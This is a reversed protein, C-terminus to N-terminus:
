STPELIVGKASCEAELRAFYTPDPYGYGNSSDTGTKHHIGNWIVTNNRGSTISTGITFTLKREWCIKLLNIIKQGDETNPVYCHRVTGSYLTGPHVHNDNQVGSPFSYIIEFTTTALEGECQANILQVKMTGYPMNGCRIGYIKTCIACEVYNGKSSKFYNALCDEHYYHNDCQSMRVMIEDSDSFDSLCIPCIQEKMELTPTIVAYKTLTQLTELNKTEGRQISTRIPRVFSTRLNQQVMFDFNVNYFSNGVSFKVSGENNTCSATFKQTISEDYTNWGGDYYEWM